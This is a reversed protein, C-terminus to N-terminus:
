DDGEESPDDDPCLKSQDCTFIVTMGTKACVIERDVGLDVNLNEGRLGQWQALYNFTGFKFPKKLRKSVGGKWDLVPLEGREACQALEPDKARIERGVEWATILGEDEGNWRSDWDLGARPLESFLRQILKGM